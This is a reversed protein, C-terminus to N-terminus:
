RAPVLNRPTRRASEKRHWAWAFQRQQCAFCRIPRAMSLWVPLEYWRWRSTLTQTSFCSSCKCGAEVLDNVRKNYKIMQASAVGAVLGALSFLWLLTKMMSGPEGTALETSPFGSTFTDAQDSSSDRAGLTTSLDFTNTVGLTAAVGAYFSSPGAADAQVGAATAGKAVNIPSDSTLQLGPNSRALTPGDARSASGTRPDLDRTETAFALSAASLCSLLLYFGWVRM